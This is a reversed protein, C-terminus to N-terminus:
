RPAIKDAANLFMTGISAMMNPSIDVSLHGGRGDTQVSIALPGGEGRRYVHWRQGDMELKAITIPGM